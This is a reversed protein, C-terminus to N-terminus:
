GGSVPPLLAVESGSEIVWADDADVLQQDVALKTHARHAALLPYRDLLHRWLEDQTCRDLPLTEQATGTLDRIPGFYLLTM